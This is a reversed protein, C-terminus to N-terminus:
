AAVRSVFVSAARVQSALGCLNFDDRIYDEPVETFFENGQVACARRIFEVVGSAEGRLPCFILFRTGEPQLVMAGM